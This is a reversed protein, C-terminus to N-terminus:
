KRHKYPGIKLIRAWQPHVYLGGGIPVVPKSRGANVKQQKIKRYYPSDGM